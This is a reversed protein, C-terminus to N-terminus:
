AAVRASAHAIIEILIDGTLSGSNAEVRERVVNPLKGCLEDFTAGEAHVGFLDSNEVYWVKANDDYKARVVVMRTM